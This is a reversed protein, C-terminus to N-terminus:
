LGAKAWDDHMRTLQVRGTNDFVNTGNGIWPGSFCGVSFDCVRGAALLAEFKIIHDNFGSKIEIDHMRKALEYKAREHEMCFKYDSSRLHILYLDSDIM